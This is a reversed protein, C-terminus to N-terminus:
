QGAAVRSTLAEDVRGKIYAVDNKIAEVKVNLEQLQKTHADVAAVMEPLKEIQTKNTQILAANSYLTYGHTAIATILAVCGTYGIKAYITSYWKVTPTIPATAEKSKTM